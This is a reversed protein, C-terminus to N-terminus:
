CLDRGYEAFHLAKVEALSDSHQVNHGEKQASAGCGVTESWATGQADYLLERESEYNAHDRGYKVFHLAQVEALSTSRGVTMSWATGQVDYLMEEEDGYDAHDRGYRAFNLAKVEALSDGLEGLQM